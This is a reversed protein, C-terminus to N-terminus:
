QTYYFPTGGIYPYRDLIGAYRTLQEALKRALDPSIAIETQDPTRIVVM